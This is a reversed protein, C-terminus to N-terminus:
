TFVNPFLDVVGRIMNAPIGREISNDGGFFWGCSTQGVMVETKALFLKTLDSSETMGAFRQALAPAFNEGTFINDYQELLFDEFETRWGPRVADLQRNVWANMNRLNEFLGRKDTQAKESAGDCGCSGTWRGLGHPCSWSSNDWVDVYTKGRVGTRFQEMVEKMDLPKFGYQGQVELARRLFKDRFPKHHGYLEADSMAFPNKGGQELEWKRGAMYADANETPWSEYSILQSLDSNGLLVTMEHGGDLPVTCINHRADLPVGHADIQSDRLPVFEYGAEAALQLTERAVATEPLWLGKPEFGFDNVFARRGASLLMRQDEPPLLPLISHILSDGLVGYERDPTDAVTEQIKRFLEPNEKKFYSRLPAYLSTVLGPPLAETEALLPRYAQETIRGNWEPDVVFGAQYPKGDRQLQAFFRRPPQYAHALVGFLPREDAVRMELRRDQVLESPAAM